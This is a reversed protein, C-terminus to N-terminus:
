IRRRCATEVTEGSVWVALGNGAGCLFARNERSDTRREFSRPEGASQSVGPYVAAVRASFGPSAGIGNADGSRVPRKM